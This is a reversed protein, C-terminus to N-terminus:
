REHRKLTHWSKKLIYAVFIISVGATYAYYFIAVKLARVFRVEGTEDIVLWLLIGIAAVKYIM